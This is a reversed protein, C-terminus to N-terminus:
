VMSSAVGAASEIIIYKGFLFVEYNLVELYPCELSIWVAKFFLMLFVTSWWGEYLQSSSSAGAWVAEDRWLAKKRGDDWLMTGDCLSELLYIHLASLSSLFKSDPNTVSKISESGEFGHLPSDSYKYIYSNFAIKIKPLQSFFLYQPFIYMGQTNILMIKMVLIYLMRNNAM